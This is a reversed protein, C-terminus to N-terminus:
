STKNQGDFDSGTTGMKPALHSGSGTSHGSGSGAGRITQNDMDTIGGSRVGSADNPNWTMGEALSSHDRNSSLGADANGAAEDTDKLENLNLDPDGNVERIMENMTSSRLKDQDANLQDDDLNNTRNEDM